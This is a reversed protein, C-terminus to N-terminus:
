SVVGAAPVTVDSAAAVGAAVGAAGAVGSVSGVSHGPTM